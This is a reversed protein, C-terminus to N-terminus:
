YYVDTETFIGNKKWIVWTKKLAALVLGALQM